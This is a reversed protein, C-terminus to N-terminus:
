LITQRMFEDLLGPLEAARTELKQRVRVHRDSLRRTVLEGRIADPNRNTLIMVPLPWTGLSRMQDLIWLGTDLGEQTLLHDVGDPTPMMIDLVVARVKPNEELFPLVEVARNLFHVRYRRELADIYRAAFFPEDDVFLIAPRGGEVNAMM